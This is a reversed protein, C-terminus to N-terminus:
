EMDEIIQVDVDSHPNDDDASCNQVQQAKFSANEREARKKELRLKIRSTAYPYADPQLFISTTGDANQKFCQKPFHKACVVNTRSVPQDILLLRKWIQHREPETAENPFPHLSYSKKRKDMACGPACCIFQLGHAKLNIQARLKARAEVSM